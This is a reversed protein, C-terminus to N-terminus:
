SGYLLKTLWIAFLSGLTGGSVYGFLTPGHLSDSSEKAIRRVVVFGITAILADTLATWAYLGKMYARGNAVM